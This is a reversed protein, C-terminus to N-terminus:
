GAARGVGGPPGATPPDGGPQKLALADVPAPPRPLDQLPGVPQITTGAPPAPPPAPPSAPEALPRDYPNSPQITMTGGEPDPGPSGTSPSSSSASATTAPTPSTSRAM